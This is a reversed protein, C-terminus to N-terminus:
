RTHPIRRRFVAILPPPGLDELRAYGAIFRPDRPLLENLGIHSLVSEILVFDPERALVLDVFRRARAERGHALAEAPGLGALLGRGLDIAKRDLRYIGAVDRDIWGATDLFRVDRGRRALLYPARGMQAYAVLSGDPVHEVLWWAASLGWQGREAFPDRWRALAAGPHWCAPPNARWAAASGALLSGLLAVAAGARAASPWARTLPDWTSWAPALLLPLAPMM